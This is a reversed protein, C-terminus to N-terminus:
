AVAAIEAHHDPLRDGHRRARGADCHSSRQPFRGALPRGGVTVQMSDLASTRGHPVALGHDLYTTQTEERLLVANKIHRLQRDDLVEAMSDTLTELAQAQTTSPQFTRVHIQLNDAVPDESPKQNKM